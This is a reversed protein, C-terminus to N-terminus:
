ADLLFVLSSLSVPHKGFLFGKYTDHLDYLFSDFDSKSSKLSDSTVSFVVYKSLVSLRILSNSGVTSLFYWHTNTNWCATSLSGSLTLFETWVRINRLHFGGPWLLNCAASSFQMQLWAHCCEQTTSSTSSVPPVSISKDWNLM